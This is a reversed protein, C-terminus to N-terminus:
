MMIAVSPCDILVTQGRALGAAQAHHLRARRPKAKALWPVITCLIIVSPICRRRCSRLSPLDIVSGRRLTSITGTRARISIAPENLIPARSRANQTNAALVPKGDQGRRLHNM